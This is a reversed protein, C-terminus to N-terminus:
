SGSRASSSSATSCTPPAPASSPEPQRHGQQRSRPPLRHQRRRGPRHLGGGGRRRRRRRDDGRDHRRRANGAGAIGPARLRQNFEALKDHMELVAKVAVGAHSPMNRPANFFFMIGDGLFKNLTGQNHRIVPVLEGFLENLMPVVKEGLRESIATFGALDTFVVTMERTEGNFTVQPNEMVYDVIKPDVYNSFRRTIRGREAAEIIVSTLTCAAWVAAITVLPAAAGLLINFKDFLVSGNVVAFACAVALAIMAAKLPPFRATTFSILSGLV